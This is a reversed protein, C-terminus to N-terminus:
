QTRFHKLFDHCARLILFYFIEVISLLSIGAFLGLLGGVYSVADSFTFQQVKRYLVLDDTNLQVTIVIEKDDSNDAPYFTTQYTISNCEPLCTCNNNLSSGHLEYLKREETKACYKKNQDCFDFKIKPGYIYEKIQCKCLNVMYDVICEMQCYEQSYIKFYKLRKKGQFYCDRDIPSLSRLNEDTKTIKLNILVNTSQKIEVFDDKKMFHPLINPKHINILHERCTKMFQNQFKQKKIRLIFKLRSNTDTILPHLELSIKPMSTQGLMSYNLQYKFDDNVIKYNLLKESEILNFSFGVTFTTLIEAFSASFKENWTANQQLFLDIQSQTKINELGKIKVNLPKYDVDINNFCLSYSSLFTKTTKREIHYNYKVYFCPQLCKCQDIQREFLNRANEFCEKESASCIRTTFNQIMFFEVCGCQTIMFDTLCESECNAKTYVKFFKLHYEDDLYCNRDKISENEISEDIAMIHPEIFINTLEKYNIMKTLTFKTPIEYSNHLFLTHGNFEWITDWKYSFAQLLFTQKGRAVRRPIQETYNIRISFKNYEHVYHFDKTILNINFLETALVINFNTCLGFETLIETIGTYGQTVWFFSYIEKFIYTKDFENIVDLFDDTPISFNIKAFTGRQSLLDVVQLRKLSEIWHFKNSLYKFGYITSSRFFNEIEM